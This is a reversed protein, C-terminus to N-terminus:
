EFFLFINLDNAFAAIPGGGSLHQFGTGNVNRKEIDLHRTLTSQFGESNGRLFGLGEDNKNGCEFLLGDPGDYGLCKIVPALGVAFLPEAVREGAQSAMECQQVLLLRGSLFIVASSVDFADRDFRIAADNQELRIVNIPDFGFVVVDAQMGAADSMEDPFRHRCKLRLQVRSAEAADMAGGDDVDLADFLNLGPETTVRNDHEVVALLECGAAVEAVTQTLPQTLESWWESHSSADAKSVECVM